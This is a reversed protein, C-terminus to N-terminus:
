CNVIPKLHRRNRLLKSGSDVVYSRGGQRVDVIVGRRDWGGKPHQIRVGQGIELQPLLKSRLNYNHEKQGKDVAIRKEARRIEDSSLRKYTDSSAPLTTRQAFGFLWQSPSLGDCRPINRWELLANDFLDENLHGNTWCKRVLDKMAKVGAEAHGNSQPYHASSMISKIGNAQCFMLFEQSAFQKGGDTRLVIPYGYDRFIKKFANIVTNSNPLKGFKIVMPWSSYRDIVAMFHVSGYEFLDASISEFPRTAHNDSRLPERQQSPRFRQCKECSEVLMTIENNMGIWYYLDRARSRTRSIGQHAAHVQSLVHQRQALPVIIKGNCLILGNQMTSLDNWVKLYSRFFHGSPLQKVQNHTLKQVAQFLAQYDDDNIAANILADLAPDPMSTSVSNCFISDEPVPDSVPARSLADAICHTKGAVWDITFNYGSLKELISRTRPNDIMALNEGNGIAKLPKHDTIIYFHPLGMLYTHCSSVAYQIALAELEGTSYRTEADSLFRSGCQVLKWKANIADTGHNQVLAYGLGNLKSADTLLRTQLNIDFHALIPPSSLCKKVEQFASDHEPLWQWVNKSSLLPRLPSAKTSIDLSFSGLQNVLGFFSRLDTINSPTPFDTIAKVKSPDASVGDASIKMGVFRVERGIVFKSASLTINNDNCAEMIDNLSKQLANWSDAYVLVDDVVKIKNTINELARDGRACYEDGSSALGMPARTYCFRGWPTLFTTLLQSEMDLPVQWYGKTADLTAFWKANPPIAMKVDTISPFPHIPRRVFKNLGKYDVVLRVDGNPKGVVLFPSIFDTPETVSRIIGKSLMDDLEAKAADRFSYPIPRSVLCPKPKKEDPIDNLFIYMPDGSMAELSTSSDFVNTFSSIISNKFSQIEEDNPNDMTFGVHKSQSPKVMTVNVDDSGSCYIPEPFRAQICGFELLAHWSLIVGDVDPTVFFIITRMRDFYRVNLTVTGYCRLQSSNAAFMQRKKSKDIDFGYKDVMSSNMISESAGTDPLAEMRINQDTSPNSVYIIAMPSSSGSDPLTARIFIANTKVTKHKDSDLKRCVKDFHGTIGCKRCVQNRAPCKSPHTSTFPVGCRYCSRSADTSSGGQSNRPTRPTSQSRKNQKYSSIRNASIEKASMSLQNRDSAEWVLCKDKIAKFDHDDMKLLEKQLQKDPVTAVIHSALRDEYSMNDLEANDGLLRLRILFDSFLEGSKPICQQFHLRRTMVNLAESYHKHLAEIVVPVEADDKVELLHVLTIQVKTSLCSRLHARQDRVSYRDMKNAAFFDEFQRRWRKFDALTAEAELDDPKLSMHFKRGGTDQSVVPSDHVTNGHQRIVEIQADRIARADEERRQQEFLSRANIVIVIHDESKSQFKLFASFYKEKMSAENDPDLDLIDHIRDVSVQIKQIYGKVQEAYTEARVLDELRTTTGTIPKISRILDELAKEAFTFYSAASRKATSLETSM